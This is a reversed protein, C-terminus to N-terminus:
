EWSKIEHNREAMQHVYHEMEERSAFTDYHKLLRQKDVSDYASLVEDVKDESTEVNRAGDTLAWLATNRYYFDNSQMVDGRM